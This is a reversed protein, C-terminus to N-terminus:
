DNWFWEETHANWWYPMNTNPDMWKEWPSPHETHFSEFPAATCKWTGHLTILSDPVYHWKRWTSSHNVITPDMLTQVDAEMSDLIGHLESVQLPAHLTVPDNEAQLPAADHLDQQPTICNADASQGVAVYDSDDHAPASTDTFNQQDDFVGDAVDHKASIAKEVAPAQSPTQTSADTKCPQTAKSGHNKAETENFSFNQCRRMRVWKEAKDLEFLPQGCSWDHKLVFRISDASWTTLDERALLTSLKCWGYYDMYLGEPAHTPNLIAFLKKSLPKLEPPVEMRKQRDAWSM